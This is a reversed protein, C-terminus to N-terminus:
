HMQIKNLMIKKQTHIQEENKKKKMCGQVYNTTCSSLKNIKRLQEYNHTIKTKKTNTKEREKTNKTIKKWTIFIRSM